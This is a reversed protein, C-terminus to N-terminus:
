HSLGARPVFGVDDVNRLRTAVLKTEAPAEHAEGRVPAFFTADDERVRFHLLRSLTSAEAATERLDREFICRPLSELNNGKAREDRVVDFSVRLVLPEHCGIM